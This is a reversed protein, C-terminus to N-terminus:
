KMSQIVQKTSFHLALAQNFELSGDPREKMLPKTYLLSDSGYKQINDPLSTSSPDSAYAEILAKEVGKLSANSPDLFDIKIGLAHSLSDLFKKENARQNNKEIIQVVGRSFDFAAETLEADSVKRIKGAEM